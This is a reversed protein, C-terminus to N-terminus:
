GQKNDDLQKFSHSQFLSQQKEVIFKSNKLNTFKNENVFHIDINPAHSIISRNKIIRQNPTNNNIMM